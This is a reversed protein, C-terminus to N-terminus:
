GPRSPTVVGSSRSASRAVSPTVHDCASGTAANGQSWVSASMEMEQSSATAPSTVLSDLSSRNGLADSNRRQPSKQSGSQRSGLAATADNMECEVFGLVAYPGTVQASDLVEVAAAAARADREYARQENEAAISRANTADIFGSIWCGQLGTVFLLLIGIHKLTGWVSSCRKRPLVVDEELFFM